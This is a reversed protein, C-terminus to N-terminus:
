RKGSPMGPIEMKKYDAPVTFLSDDLSKREISTVEMVTKSQGNEIKAVKLPFAGGEVFKAFEPNANLQAKIKDGFSLSKLKDLISGSQEGAGFYGLGNALCVDTNQEDGFIWHQCKFGAVMETKGTSTVKSFDGSTGKGKAMKEAMERWNVIMYTKTQPILLTQTGSSMDLLMVGTQSSGQSLQTEARTRAGKIAYRIEMPQDGSFMKATIAGEFANGGGAPASASPSSASSAAPADSASNQKAGGCAAGFSTILLFSLLLTTKPSQPILRIRAVALRTM